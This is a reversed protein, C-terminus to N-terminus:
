AHPASPNWLFEFLRNSSWSLAFVSGTALSNLHQALLRMPQLILLPWILRATIFHNSASQM